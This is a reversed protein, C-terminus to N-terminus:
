RTHLLGHLRDQIDPRPDDRFFRLFHRIRLTLFLDPLPDLFAPFNGSAVLRPLIVERAQGIFIALTGQAGFLLGFRAVILRRIAFDDVLHRSFREFAQLLFSKAILDRM